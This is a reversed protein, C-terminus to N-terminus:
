ASTANGKSLTGKPYTANGLVGQPQLTGKPYPIGKPYLPHPIGKLYLTGKLSPLYLIGKPCPIEKPYLHIYYEGPIYYERLIYLIYYEGLICCERSIYYARLIYCGKPSLPYLIWHLYLIGKPYLM